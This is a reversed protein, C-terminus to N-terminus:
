SQRWPLVAAKWGATLGRQHQENQPGEFGDTINYCRSFGKSTAAIAADLSRGGTRCLFLLPASKKLGADMLTAIFRENLAYSPFIKWSIRLPEKGLTSLDPEGSFAWEPPTRVDVLVASEDGALCEWAQQAQM